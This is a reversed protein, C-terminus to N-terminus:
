RNRVNTWGKHRKRTGLYIERMHGRNLDYGRRVINVASGIYVKNNPGDIRYIGALTKLM